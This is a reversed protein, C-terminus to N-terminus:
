VTTGGIKIITITVNTDADEELRFKILYFSLPLFDYTIAIHKRFLSSM